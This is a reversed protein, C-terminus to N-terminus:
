PFLNQWRLVRGRCLGQHHQGLHKAILPEENLGFGRKPLRNGNLLLHQSIVMRLQAVGEVGKPGQQDLLAVEYSRHLSEFCTM